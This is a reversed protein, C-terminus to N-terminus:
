FFIKGKEFLSRVAALGQPIHLQYHSIDPFSTWVGGWDLNQKLGLVGVEKYLPSDTLYHADKFIGIDWALGFNHWSYGGKAKTVIPGPKTRGQAYLNNQTEYTRTGCIIQVNFGNTLVTHLFKRAEVQATLHLSSINEESRKDFMGYTDAVQLTRAKFEDLATRTGNGVIGDISKTYLGM